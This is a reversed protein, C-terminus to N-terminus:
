TAARSPLESHGVNLSSAMHRMLVFNCDVLRDPLETQYKYYLLIWVTM